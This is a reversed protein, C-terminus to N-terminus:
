TTRRVVVPRGDATRGGAPTQAPACAGRTRRLLPLLGTRAAVQHLGSRLSHRAQERHRQPASGALRTLLREYRYAVLAPDFRAASHVAAAAMRHRLPEDEILECLAAALAASDGVPVLRGDSGDQIIEGPGHPCDTAVAPVGCRMAEAIIMGFSEADSSLALISAKALEPEIPTRAGMLTVNASLERDAILRQLREREAGGGYLRLRWDPHEAAVTAFAEILLDFRKGKALRGAAAVVKATGDSPAPVLAPLPDPVSNPVALVEVGPLAMRRRYDDADAETTTVLADLHRYHPALEARLRGSHVSLSLHEQGIRLARRPAFRALYVNLGPRTGFLVDADSGKLYAEARQEILRNYQGYRKEHAPFVRAPEAFAAHAVDPGAERTDVLPVLRVRPDLALRTQSRHRMMSAIEVEHGRDALGAALNFTTRVTGGIGYANHLLFAIKMPVGSERSRHKGARAPRSPVPRRVSPRHVSLRRRRTRPPRRVRTPLRGPSPRGRAPYVLVETAAFRLSCTVALALATAPLVALGLEGVLLAILPIRLALDANALLAFRVTRDAWHRHSRRGRFLVAEVLVFNWAVGSQNALVEAPLYHLGAAVLLRLVALNPVFGSLGILAFAAM